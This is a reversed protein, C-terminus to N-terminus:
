LMIYWTTACYVIIYVSSLINVYNAAKKEANGNVFVPGSTGSTSNLQALIEEKLEPTILNNYKEFLHMFLKHM